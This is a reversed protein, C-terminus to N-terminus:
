NKGALDLINIFGKELFDQMENSTQRYIDLSHGVPDWIEKISGAMESLLFIKEKSQPFNHKLFCSQESEMCIVLNFEILLSETVLRSLHNNLDLGLDKMIRVALDTAPYGNTAWIGASEIKWNEPQIKKKDVLDRLLVM